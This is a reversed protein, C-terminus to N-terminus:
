HCQPGWMSLFMLQLSRSTRTLLVLHLITDTKVTYHKKSDWTKNLIIIVRKMRYSFFIPWFKRVKKWFKERKLNEYGYKSEAQFICGILVFLGLIPATTRSIARYLIVKLFLLWIEEGFSLSYNINFAIFYMCDQIEILPPSFWHLKQLATILITFFCRQTYTIVPMIFHSIQSILSCLASGSNVSLLKTRILPQNM